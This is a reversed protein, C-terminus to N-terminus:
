RLAEARPLAAFCALLDEIRNEAPNAAFAELRDYVSADVGTEAGIRRVLASVTPWDYSYDATTMLQEQVQRTGDELEAEIVCCLRAVGEDPVLDIREVLSNVAPDDYVTM